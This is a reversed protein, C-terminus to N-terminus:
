EWWSVLSLSKLFPYNPPSIKSLRSDFRYRKSFGTMIGGSNFTGVPGRYKQVISGTMYLLGSVPRTSYNQATFSGDISMVCAQIHVDCNNVTNETIYINNKAVLGLLDTSNPNTLPNDAYVLDDDIWITSTTLITTEGHFTGKVRVEATSYIAGNPAIDAVMVTDTPNGQVTRIVSGDAQFDFTVPLNYLCKSNIPAAANATNAANILFTMDTPIDNALGIEWGGLFQASGDPPCPSMGLQATVKDFFVPSGSTKLVGNTHVPGWISDGTIWYVGNENETFWFYKSIPMNNAFYAIISDAFLKNNNLEQDFLYAWSKVKVRVTDVGAPSIEGRASCTNAVVWFLDSNIHQDWVKNVALNMVSLSTQHILVAMYNSNFNDSTALVNRSMRVQLSSFALVFGFVILLAGKGLM